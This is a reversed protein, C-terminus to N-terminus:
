YYDEDEDEDWDDEEEDYDDDFEDDDEDFDDREEDFSYRQDDKSGHIDELRKKIFDVLIKSIKDLDSEVLHNPIRITEFGKQSSYIYRYIDTLAQTADFHHHKGDVEINLKAKPIAIDISKHGDNHELKAPIGAQILKSFLKKATPTARNFRRKIKQQDDFCIFIGYNKISYDAVKQSLKKRCKACRSM